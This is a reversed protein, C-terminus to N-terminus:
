IWNQSKAYEIANEFSKHDGSESKWIAKGESDVFMYSEPWAGSINNFDDNMNDIFIGDLKEHLQPFKALLSACNSIRDEITKASNIGFGLPWTDDGHAEAIYIM